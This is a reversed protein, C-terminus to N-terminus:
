KEFWLPDNTDKKGSNKYNFTIEEDKNINELAFFEILEEKTKIEFAANPRYSHNYLSGFGLAIASRGKGYYFFYTVLISETLNSTDNESIEIIPCREIVEGKNIDCGAFVGRGVSDIKSESIYIKDSAAIKNM